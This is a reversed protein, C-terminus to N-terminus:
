PRCTIVSDGTFQPLVVGNRSWQYSSAGGPITVTLEAKGTECITTGANQIEGSISGFNSFYGFATGGGTNSTVGLHFVGLSNSIIAGEGNVIPDSINLDISAAYWGSAGVASFASAPIVGPIIGSSKKFTFAGIDAQKALISLIFDLTNNRVIGVSQSGTCTLSPIVAGGVECGTGAIQYVLVSDSSTIYKATGYNDIRHYQGLNFTGAAAGDVTITVGDKIPYIFIYDSAGNTLSGPMVVYEKGALKTPILQDGNLDGCGGNPISILDDAHVVGVPKDSEIITGGLKQAATVFPNSNSKVSSIIYIQGRNLLKTYTGGAVTHNQIDVKPTVSITTNDESAIVYAEHRTDCIACTNFNGATIIFKNGLGNSGKLSFLDPNPDGAGSDFYVSILETSSILVGKNVIVDEGSAVLASFITNLAFSYSSNAPITQVALATGGAAPQSITVTAEKGFTGVRFYSNSGVNWFNVPSIEPVAFWFTKDIQANANLSFLLGLFLLFIYNKFKVM